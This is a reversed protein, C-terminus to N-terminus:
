SFWGSKMALAHKVHEPLYYYLLVLGVYGTAGAIIAHDAFGDRKYLEELSSNDWARKASKAADPTHSLVARASAAIGTAVVIAKVGSAIRSNKGFKKWADSLDNAQVSATVLLVIALFRKM